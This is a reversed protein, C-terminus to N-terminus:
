RKEAPTRQHYRNNHPDITLTARASSEGAEITMNGFGSIETYYVDRAAIVDATSLAGFGETNVDSLTIRVLCASSM